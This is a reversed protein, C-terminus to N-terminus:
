LAMDCDVIICILWGVSRPYAWSGALSKGAIAHTRQPRKPIYNWAPALLQGLHWIVGSYSLRKPYPDDNKLVTKDIFRLSKKIHGAFPFCAISFCDSELM